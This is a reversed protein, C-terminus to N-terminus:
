RNQFLDSTMVAIILDALPYDSDKLSVVIRDVASRDRSEIRRGLAHSLIRSAVTRVFFEERKLLLTRLEAPGSFRDGGPLVGSTDIRDKRKSDYFERKRGIPDFGELAFGLPDFKRHCQNCAASERHKALQDRISVAGRIDPDLAPVDDPPPPVPTGLLTEMLWIGRIVPSTEIGNASVTLVSAHGLLGGRDENRFQVRHFKAAEDVPVQDAVGYLKALDRNVFTYDANLFELTSANRHILDRMFLRTEQKMESELGGAYYERSEKEDPPMSGLARLNLWSDLFDAIFADSADSQLLRGAESQLVDRDSLKGEDALKRLSDDPMSSTLFYALREAIGHNSLKASTSEDPPSLYLFAPSCLTAKLADKYAEIASQGTALRGQYVTLLAKSEAETAPRRYARSAFRALLEPVRNAEFASDGLLVLESPKPSLVEVPGIVQVEHIRIQPLHGFKIVAKRHDVIGKQKREDKPLTEVENRFVRGYAGRVDHMGNEFTFRPAFGKDLRIRFTYWELDNDKITAEALLPQIPQTHVMDGIATNGPRIGMRFPEELDILVTQTSYPTDRHLAQAQVRVDYLGDVPVGNSFGPLPGYAGEPKDNLPHDYLVLYRLDFAYRHAGKLESQQEFGQNFVWEQPKSPSPKEPVAAPAEPLAKEVCRDAADLYKELLYGSTVLVDGINDFHNSLNDAPFEITPDFMTMDIGLLDRVTNRYERRTLRRLVTQGGTSTSRERMDSLVKTLQAIAALRDKTGPQDSDEPPMTELTIQDIIEQLKLQTDFHDNKLDLTEFEREGSPDDVSHCAVCYKDLFTKANTLLPDQACIDSRCAVIVLLLSLLCTSRM